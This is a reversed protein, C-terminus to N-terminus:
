LTRLPQYKTTEIALQHEHNLVCYYHTHLRYLCSAYLVDSFLVMVMINQDDM